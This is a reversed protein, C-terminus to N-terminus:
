RAPPTPDSRGRGGGRATLESYLGQYSTLKRTPLDAAQEPALGEQIYVIFVEHGRRRLERTLYALQREAAGGTLTPTLHLIRM